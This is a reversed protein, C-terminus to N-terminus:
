RKKRNEAADETCQSRFEYPVRCFAAGVGDNCLIAADSSLIISIPGFYYRNCWRVFPSCSEIYKWCFKGVAHDVFRIWHFGMSYLTCKVLLFWFADVIIRSIRDFTSFCCNRTPCVLWRVHAFCQFHMPSSFYVTSLWSLSRPPSIHQPFCLTYRRWHWQQQPQWQFSYSKIWISDTHYPFDNMWRIRETARESEGISHFRSLSSRKVLIVFLPWISSYYRM